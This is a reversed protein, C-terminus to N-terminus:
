ETARGRRARARARGDPVKVMKTKRLEQLHSHLFVRSQPLWRTGCPYRVAAPAKLAQPLKANPQRMVEPAGGLGLTTSCHQFDIM